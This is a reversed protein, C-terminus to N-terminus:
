VISFLSKWWLWRVLVLLVVVLLWWVRVGEVERMRVGFEDCMVLALKGEAM